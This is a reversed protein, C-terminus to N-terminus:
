DDNSRSDRQSIDASFVPVARTPIFLGVGRAFWMYRGRFSISPSHCRPFDGWLTRCSVKSSVATGRHGFEPNRWKSERFIWKTFIKRCKM